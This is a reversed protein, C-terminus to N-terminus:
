DHPDSSLGYRGRLPVYLVDSVITRRVGDVTKELLPLGAPPGAWPNAYAPVM